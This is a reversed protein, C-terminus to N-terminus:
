AALRFRNIQRRLEQVQEDLHRTAASMEEVLAANQQTVQNMQAMAETVQRTADAQASCQALSRM